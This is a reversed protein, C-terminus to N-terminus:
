LDVEQGVGKERAKKYALSATAADAIAIGSSEFLTIEDQSRRGEIKGDLLGGLEGCIQDKTLAGEELPLIIDGKEALISEWSDLFVKSAKIVDVGIERMERRYSGIANIHTGPWIQDISFLPTPSTTCTAIIQSNQCLTLSDVPEIETINYRSAMLERFAKSKASSTGTVYIKKIQRVRRITLIHYEAQLGTGFIGLTSADNRALHKTALASVSATRLATIYTGNMLSLPRGTEPDFLLYSAIVRPLRLTDNGEFVSVVKHGVIKSQALLAPMFIFVGDPHSLSIRRKVPVQCAGRSYEIFAVALAHIVEDIDLVKKLDSESLVLVM